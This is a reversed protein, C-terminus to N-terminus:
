VLSERHLKNIIKGIYQESFGTEESIQAYFASLYLKNYTGNKRYEDTIEQYRKYIERHKKVTSEHQKKSNMTFIDHVHTIKVRVFTFMVGSVAM